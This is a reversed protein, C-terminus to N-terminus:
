MASRRLGGRPLSVIRLGPKAELFPANDRVCQDLAAGVVKCSDDIRVVGMAEEDCALAKSGAEIVCALYQRDQVDCPLPWDLCRQVCDAQSPTSSCGVEAVVACANTCLEGDSGADEPVPAADRKGEGNGSCGAIGLALWLVPGPAKAMLVSTGFVGVQGTLQHGQEDV